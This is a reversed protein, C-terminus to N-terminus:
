IHATGSLALPNAKCSELLSHLQLVPEGYDGYVLVEIIRRILPSFFAKQGKETLLQILEKKGGSIGQSSTGM